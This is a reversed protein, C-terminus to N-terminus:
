PAIAGNYPSTGRIKDFGDLNTLLNACNWVKLLADNYRARATEHSRHIRLAISRFSYGCSYWWILRFERKELARAWALATLMDSIDRPNPRFRPMRAETYGYADDSSRVVEPWMNHIVQYKAEPDPIARLTKCARLIRKEVEDIEMTM